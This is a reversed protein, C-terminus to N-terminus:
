IQCQKQLMIITEGKVRNKSHRMYGAQDTMEFSDCLIFGQAAAIETLWRDTHIEVIEEGVKTTTNGIVVVYYGGEELAEGVQVFTQQMDTFYKYLLAGMNLRRFGARAALNGRHIARIPTVVSDPLGHTNADLQAELFRRKAEGIERNGIMALELESREGKPLLGLAFLSLRDTDIYPLATAYPPSTIAAKFRVAGLEANHLAAGLARADATLIHASASRLSGYLPLHKKVELAALRKQVGHTMREALKPPSPLSKRRLIRLSEPDQYSIDRLNDSLTLLCIGRSPAHDSQRIVRLCGNIQALADAPFWERLYARNEPLFQDPIEGNKSDEIESAIASLIHRCNEELASYPTTVTSIKVEAILRALPNMDLGVSNVGRLSCEVLTTGSGCFPELVWDGPRVHCANLLAGVLQPYYKGKYSHFAHSLYSHERKNCRVSEMVDMLPLATDNRILKPLRNVYVQFPTVFQRTSGENWVIRQVYTLDNLLSLPIEIPSQFDIQLPPSEEVVQFVYQSIHELCGYCAIVQHLKPGITLVVNEPVKALQMVAVVERLALAMEFDRLQYEAQLHLTYDIM